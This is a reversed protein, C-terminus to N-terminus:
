PRDEDPVLAPSPAAATAPDVPMWIVYPVDPKGDAKSVDDRYRTVKGEQELELCAAHTDRQERDAHEPYTSLGKGLGDANGQMVKFAESKDM